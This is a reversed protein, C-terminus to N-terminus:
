EADRQSDQASEQHWQAREPGDPEVFGKTLLKYRSYNRQGRLRLQDARSVFELVTATRTRETNAPRNQKSM